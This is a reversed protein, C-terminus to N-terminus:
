PPPPSGYGSSSIADSSTSPYTYTYSSPAPYPAPGNPPQPAPQHIYPEFTMDPAKEENLDVSGGRSRRRKIFWFVLAAIVLLGVGGVIGGAIAGVNTGSSADSNSVSPSTSATSTPASAASSTSTGGLISCVNSVNQGSQIQLQATGKTYEYFWAGDIWFLTYLYNPINIGQNCAAQQAIKPLAKNTGAGCNGRYMGYTGPFKTMASIAQLAPVSTGLRINLIVAKVCGSMHGAQISWPTEGVSQTYWDLSTTKCTTNGALVSALGASVVLLAFGLGM